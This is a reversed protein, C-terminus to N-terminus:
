SLDLQGALVREGDVRVGELGLLLVKRPVGDSYGGLQSGDAIVRHCAKEACCAM